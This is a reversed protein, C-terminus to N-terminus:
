PAPIGLADGEWSTDLPGFSVTFCVPLPEPPMVLVCLEVMQAWWKEPHLQM